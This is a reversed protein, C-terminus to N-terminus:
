KQGRLFFDIEGSSVACGSYKAAYLAAELSQRGKPLIESLINQEFALAILEVSRVINLGSFMSSIIKAKERDVSIEKNRRKQLLQRLKEPAEILLRTTREDIVFGRAGTERALALAAIEGGQLLRIPKGKSYFCNNAIEQIEDFGHRNQLGKVEFVGSDIARKIRVANLEFRKIHLPRKVVEEFVTEPIFFESGTKEKIGKAIELLCTQGLAILSSADFIFQM